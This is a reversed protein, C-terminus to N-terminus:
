SLDEMLQTILVTIQSSFGMLATVLAAWHLYGAGNVSEYALVFLLLLFTLTLALIAHTIVMGASYSSRKTKYSNVM